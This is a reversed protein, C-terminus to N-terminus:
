TTSFPAGPCGPVIKRVTGTLVTPPTRSTVGTVTDATLGVTVVRTTFPVVPLINLHKRYNVKLIDKNIHITLQIYCPYQM